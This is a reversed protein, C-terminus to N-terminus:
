EDKLKQVGKKAKDVMGSMSFLTANDSKPKMAKKPTVKKAKKVKKPMKYHENRKTSMMEKTRASIVEKRDKEIKFLTEANDREDKKTRAEKSMKKAMDMANHMEGIHMHKDVVKKEMMKAESKGWMFVMSMAMAAFIVRKM